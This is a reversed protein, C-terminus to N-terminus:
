GAQELQARPFWAAEPQVQPDLAPGPDSWGQEAVRMLPEVEMDRDFRIQCSLRVDGLLKREKLKEYEARTMTDPEGSVFAVRCTTCRAFGGCRHGIDIGQAEIAVALRQGAAVDFAGEGKITLTPM